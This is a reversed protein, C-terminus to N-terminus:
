LMRLDTMYSEAQFVIFGLQQRNSFFLRLGFYCFICFAIKRSFVLLIVVVAALCDAMPGYNTRGDKESLVLLISQVVCRAALSFTSLRFGVSMSVTSLAFIPM